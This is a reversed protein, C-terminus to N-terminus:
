GFCIEGSTMDGMDSGSAPAVHECEAPVNDTKKCYYVPYSPAPGTFETRLECTLGEASDCECTFNPDCSFDFPLTKFFNQYQCYSVTM